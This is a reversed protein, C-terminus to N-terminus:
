DEKSCSGCVGAKIDRGPVSAVFDFGKSDGDELYETYRLERKEVSRDFIRTAGTVEMVGASGSHNLPCNKRHKKMRNEYLAVPNSNKLKGKLKCAKCYRTMIECDLVKGTKLSMATFTGNLSSYGRRQWSGDKSISADVVDDTSDGKLENAADIMTEEAVEYAANLLSSVSKNYSKATMPQPLNILASFKQISSYGNSISRMAYTMRIKVDYFKGPRKSTYFEKEYGCSDQCQIFLLSALGKKESFKEYLKLNANNCEPCNISSM